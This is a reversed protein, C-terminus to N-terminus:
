EEVWDEVILGPVRRFEGLNHTVVTLGRVVGQAAILLDYAGIPAGLRELKVRIRGATLADNETFPMADFASLFLNMDERRQYGWNAKTAGYELEFLTVVSVAIESPDLTLIKRNLSPFRGKM